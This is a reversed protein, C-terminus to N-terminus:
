FALDYSYVEGEELDMTYLRNKVQDVWLEHVPRDADLKHILNGEWDFIHIIHWLPAVMEEERTQPRRNGSYLAYIYHDDAYLRTYYWKSNVMGTKFVSFDPTNKMRHGVVRGTQIDIINIQSLHRMGQVIKSGDPKICDSSSFFAEPIIKAENNRVPKKYMDYNRILENTRITRLQYFPVTVEAADLTLATSQVYAMLTDRNLRYIYYYYATHHEDKWEYPIVTDM